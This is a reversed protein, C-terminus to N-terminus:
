RSKAKRLTIDFKWGMRLFLNLTSGQKTHAGEVSGGFHLSGMTIGAGVGAGGILSPKDRYLGGGFFGELYLYYRKYPHISAGVHARGMATGTGFYGGIGGYLKFFNRWNIFPYQIYLKQLYSLRKSSLSAGVGFGAQIGSIRARKPPYGSKGEIEITVKGFRTNIPLKLVKAKLKFGEVILRDIPIIVDKKGIQAATSTPVGSGGYFISILKKFVDSLYLHMIDGDNPFSLRLRYSNPEKSPLVVANIDIYPGLKYKRIYGIVRKSLWKYLWKPMWKPKEVLAKINAATVLARLRGQIRSIDIKIRFQRFPLKSIETKPPILSTPVKKVGKGKPSFVKRGPQYTDIKKTHGIAYTKFFSSLKKGFEEGKHGKFTKCTRFHFYSQGGGCLLGKLRSFHKQLDDNKLVHTKETVERGDRKVTKLIEKTEFDKASFKGRLAAGPSGHGFFEIARICKYKNTMNAANYSDIVKKITEASNRGSEVAIGDKNKAFFEASQKWIPSLKDDGTDYIFIHCGIKPKTTTSTKLTPKEQPELAIFNKRQQVVHSLEHALLRKGGPTEPSYQNTAFAVDKEMTFAKANLASAAAAARADTHIRVHNFEHGFLPEFFNRTSRSLPQGQGKLSKINSEMAPALISHQNARTKTQLIENGPHSSNYLHPMRMVRDAARDAEQEYKDNQKGTKLKPQLLPHRTPFAALNKKNLIAAAHLGSHSIKQPNNSVSKAAFTKM